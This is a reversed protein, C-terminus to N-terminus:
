EPHGGSSVLVHKGGAVAAPTVHDPTVPGTRLVTM